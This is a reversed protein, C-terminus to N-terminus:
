QQPQGSAVRLVNALRHFESQADPANPIASYAAALFPIIKNADEPSIFSGLLDSVKGAYENIDVTGNIGPVSGQDTYQLFTWKTWGAHNAPQDNNYNALWLPVNSLSNDLYNDAFSPYTYIVSTRGSATNVTNLWAHAAATISAMSGGTETEMDLAPPLQFLHFGGVQNVTQIFFNAEILATNEDSARSFHYASIAIGANKAGTVNVQFMDDVLSSGETAKIYAFSIGANKVQLWDINGQYHSVDIGRADDANRSQM